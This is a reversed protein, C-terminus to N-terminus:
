GYGDGGIGRETYNDSDGMMTVSKVVSPREGISSARGRNRPRYTQPPGMLLFDVDWIIAPLWGGHDIITSSVLEKGRVTPIRIPDLASSHYLNSSLFDM